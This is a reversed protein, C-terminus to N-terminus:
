APIGLAKMASLLEPFNNRYTFTRFGLAEAAETLDTRDDIYFIQDPRVGCARAATRYIRADPKRVKEKFSLVTKHFLSLVRYRGRVYDFHMANTNSILVLRLGRASLRRILAIMPLNPTFIGNWIRRFRAFPIPHGLAKKVTAYFQRSSIKGGDYLLELGSSIFYDEIDKASLGCAKELRRFAPDFNFHVVVKGLDFLVAKIKESNKKPMCAM